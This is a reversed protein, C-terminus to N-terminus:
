KKLTWMFNRTFKQRVPSNRTTECLKGETKEKQQINGWFNVSFELLCNFNRETAFSEEIFFIIGHFNVFIEKSCCFLIRHFLYHQLYNRETYCINGYPFLIERWPHFTVVTVWYAFMLMMKFIQWFLCILSISLWPTHMAKWALYRNTITDYWHENKLSWFSRM